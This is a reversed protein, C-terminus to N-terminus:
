LRLEHVTCKLHSIPSVNRVIAKVPVDHGGQKAKTMQWYRYDCMPLEQVFSVNGSILDVTAELTASGALDDSCKDTYETDRTVVRDGDIWMSRVVYGKSDLQARPDDWRHWDPALGVVRSPSRHTVNFTKKERRAPITIYHNPAIREKSEEVTFDIYFTNNTSM